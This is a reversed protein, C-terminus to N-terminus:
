KEWCFIVNDCDGYEEELNHKILLQWIYYKNAAGGGLRSIYYKQHPNGKIINSLQKLQAFFPKCYENAHFCESPKSGPAKKTAFGIARPHSRLESGGVTGQLAANDGFIFYASPDANLLDATVRIKKYQAPM